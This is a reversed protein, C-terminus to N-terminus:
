HDRESYLNVAGGFWAGSEPSFDDNIRLSPRLWVVVLAVLLVCVAAAVVFYAHNVRPRVDGSREGAM